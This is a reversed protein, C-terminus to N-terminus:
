ERAALVLVSVESAENKLLLEACAELTAGTTLVDDVLIIHKGKVKGPDVIEYINQQNLWRDILTKKTQSTTNETKILTNPCYSINLVDQLAEALIESQNYGRKKRKEEHIPIPILLENGEINPKLLHAFQKMLMEGLEKNQKYKFTYLLNEVKNDKRFLLYAWVNKIPVRGYFREELPKYPHIHTQYKPLEFLCVECIINEHHTLADQCSICCKPFLVDFFDSFM